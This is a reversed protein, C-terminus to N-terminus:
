LSSKFKTNVASMGVTNFLETLKEEGNEKAYQILNGCKKTVAEVMKKQANCQQHSTLNKYVTAIKELAPVQAQIVISYCKPHVASSSDNIVLTGESKEGCLHCSSSNEQPAENWSQEFLRTMHLMCDLNLM